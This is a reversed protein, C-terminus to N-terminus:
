IVELSELLLADGPDSMHGLAHCTPCSFDNAHAPYELRCAKCFFKMPVRKVVLRAGQAPSDNSETLLDFYTALSGEVIHSQEGLCLTIQTVREANAAFAQEEVLRVLHQAISLEHM